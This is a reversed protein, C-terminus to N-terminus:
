RVCGDVRGTQRDFTFIYLMDTSDSYFDVQYAETCYEDDIDFWGSFM